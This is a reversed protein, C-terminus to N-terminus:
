PRAGIDVAPPWPIMSPDRGGLLAAEVAAGVVADQRADATSEGLVEADVRPNNADGEDHQGEDTAGAQDEVGGEPGDDRLPRVRALSRSRLSARRPAARVPAVEDGQAHQRAAHHEEDALGPQPDAIGEYPRYEGGCDAHRNDPVLGVFQAELFGLVLTQM